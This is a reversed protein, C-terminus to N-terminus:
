PNEKTPVAVALHYEGRDGCDPCSYSESLSQGCEPCAFPRKPTHGFPEYQRPNYTSLRVLNMAYNHVWEEAV